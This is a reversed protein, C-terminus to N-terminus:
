SVVGVAELAFLVTGFYIPLKVIDEFPARQSLPPLDRFIYYFIIGFGTFLM